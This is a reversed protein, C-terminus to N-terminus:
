IRIMRNSDKKQLGRNVRNEAAVKDMWEKNRTKSDRTRNTTSVSQAIRAM